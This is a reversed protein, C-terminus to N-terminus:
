QGPHQTDLGVRGPDLDHGPEGVQHRHDHDHGPRGPRGPRPAWDGGGGDDPLRGLPLRSPVRVGAARYGYAPARETRGPGTLRSSGAITLLSNLRQLRRPAAAAIAAALRARTADPHELEPEL